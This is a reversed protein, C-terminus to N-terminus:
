LVVWLVFLIQDRINVLSLGIGREDPAQVNILTSGAMIARGRKWFTVWMWTWVLSSSRWWNSALACMREVYGIVVNRMPLEGCGGAGDFHM